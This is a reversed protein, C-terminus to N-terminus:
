CACNLILLAGPVHVVTIIPWHRSIALVVSCDLYACMEIVYSILLFILCLCHLFLYAHELCLQTVSAKSTFFRHNEQLVHSSSFLSCSKLLLVFFSCGELDSILRWLLRSVNPSCFDGHTLFDQIQLNMGLSLQQEVGEAGVRSCENRSSIGSPLPPASERRRRRLYSSAAALSDLRCRRRPWAPARSGIRQGPRTLRSFLTLLPSRSSEPQAGDRRIGVHRRRGQRRM